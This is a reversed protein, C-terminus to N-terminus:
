PTNENTQSPTQSPTQGPTQDPMRNPIQTHSQAQSQSLAYTRSWADLERLRDAWTAGNQAYRSRASAAQLRARGFDGGSLWLARAMAWEVHALEVTQGPVEALIKEARELAPLAEEPRGLAILAVRRARLPSAYFVPAAEDLRDLEALTQDFHGLAEDARGLALVAEGLGCRYVSRFEPFADPHQEAISLARRFAVYAANNDALLLEVTGIAASSDAFDFHGDPLRRRYIADAQAAHQRAACLNGVALEATARAYHVQGVDLADAGLAREYISQVLDFDAGARDRDGLDVFLTARNFHIAAVRPHTEGLREVYADGARTYLEIAERTDGALNSVSALDALTDPFALTNEPLTQAKHVALDLESRAQALEGRMAYLGARGRHVRAERLADPALNRTAAQACRLWREGCTPDSLKSPLTLFKTYPRVLQSLVSAMGLRVCVTIAAVSSVLIRTESWSL